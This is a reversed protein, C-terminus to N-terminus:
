HWGRQVHERLKKDADDRLGHYIHGYPTWVMEFTFGGTTLVHKMATLLAPSHAEAVIVDFKRLLDINEEVFIEKEGGETDVKLYRYTAQETISLYRKVTSEFTDSDVDIHEVYQPDSGAPDGYLSSDGYIDHGGYHGENNPRHICMLRAKGKHAYVAWPFVEVLCSIDENAELNLRLGRLTMPEPEVSVVLCGAQACLLSFTGVNAGLDLVAPRFCRAWSRVRYADLDLIEDVLSDTYAVLNIGWYKKVIVGQATREVSTPM